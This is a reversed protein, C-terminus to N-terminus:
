IDLVFSDRRHFDPREGAHLLAWYSMNGQADEIVMSLGIQWRENQALAPVALDVHLLLEDARQRCVIAPADFEAMRVGQQRYASFEYASWETSPAFNFEFYAEHHPVAVFLEACTHQWLGDRRAATLAAPIRLAFM